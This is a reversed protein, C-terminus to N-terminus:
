CCGVFSRLSAYLCIILRDENARQIHQFNSKIKRAPFGMKESEKAKGCVSWNPLLFSTLLSFIMRPM